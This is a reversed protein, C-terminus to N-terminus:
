TVKVAKFHTLLLSRAEDSSLSQSYPWLQTYLVGCGRLCHDSGDLNGEKDAFRHKSLLGNSPLDCIYGTWASEPQPTLERNGTLPSQPLNQFSCPIKLGEEWLGARNSVLEHGQAPTKQDLRLPGMHLISLLILQAAPSRWSKVNQTELWRCCLESTHTAEQWEKRIM